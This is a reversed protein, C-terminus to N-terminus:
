NYPNKPLATNQQDADGEETNQQDTEVEETNQQDADVEETDNEGDPNLEGQSFEFLQL